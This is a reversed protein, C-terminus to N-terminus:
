TVREMQNVTAQAPQREPQLWRWLLLGVILAVLLTLLKRWPPSPM